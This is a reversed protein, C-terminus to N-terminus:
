SPVILDGSSRFVEVGNHLTAVRPFRLTLLSEAFKVVQDQYNRSGMVVIIKGKFSNLIETQSCAVLKGEPTFSSDIPLNIADVLTGRLFDEPTRVDVVILKPKKGARRHALLELVDAGCIRPVKEMKLQVPTLADMMLEKNAETIQRTPSDPKSTPPPREFQRYPVSAPTSCFVQVADKVVREMDIDPMDSFLLICENFGFQLLRDKLQKLISVGVCLPLAPSGLLLTDWLLFIKHLPFVHTYMTLFWPIAYLEPIFGIEDLQIFLEPEHFAIMHSFKALYEQIVLSNDRLFFKHLYKHIFASLCAFALAENNFNLYLFPACLSDLGQWYVLCPHAAVWAKLVRSFKAHGLPSSLLEDYQHCRPIDVEIQRDTSTSTEKDVEQYKQAVPGDVKLLAAWVLARYFPPTDKRTERTLWDLKYPYAKLLREFVLFRHFQYEVDRERIVLPLKSTELDDTASEGQTILPYYQHPPIHALRTRLADLPLITTQTEQWQNRHIGGGFVEGEVVMLNPLTLISPTNKIIKQKKLEQEVNGGALQWLHYVERISRESLQDVDIFRWPKNEVDNRKAKCSELSHPYNPLLDSYNEEFVGLKTKYESFDVLCLSPDIVPFHPPIPTMDTSCKQSKFLPHALLQIPLPREASSITLCQRLFNQFDVSLSTIREKADFHMAVAMLPDDEQILNLIFTVVSEIGSNNGFFTKGIVMETIIMGLSWVDWAPNGSVLSNIPSVGTNNTLEQCAGYILVEPSMYQTRGILFSVASGGETMYYLGFNCLKVENRPSILINEPSLNRNVTGFKNLYVLGQLVQHSVHILGEQNAIVDPYKVCASRLNLLYYEQIVLIREHKGRQVDVYTSLNPHNILQLERARGFIRISNPTLPLGNSGCSESPHASAMFTSAGLHARGLKATVPYM